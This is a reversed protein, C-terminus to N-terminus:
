GVNRHEVFQLRMSQNLGRRFAFGDPSSEYGLNQNRDGLIPLVDKKFVRLIQSLTSQCGEKLSLRRFDFRENYVALFTQKVEAEAEIRQQKRHDRPNINQAILKRAEDRRKRAQKLSVEPHTGFSMRQQRVEWYYRFLWRKNGIATVMLSLGDFDSLTYNKGTARAHRITFESLPM